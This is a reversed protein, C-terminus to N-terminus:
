VYGKWGCGSGVNIVTWPIFLVHSVLPGAPMPLLDFDWESSLVISLRYALLFEKQKGASCYFRSTSYLRFIYTLARRPRGGMRSPMHLRRQLIIYSRSVAGGGDARDNFKIFLLGVPACSFLVSIMTTKPTFLSHAPFLLIYFSPYCFRHIMKSFALFLITPHFVFLKRKPVISNLTISHLFFTISKMLYKVEFLM